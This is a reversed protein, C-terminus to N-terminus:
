LREAIVAGCCHVRRGVDVALYDYIASKTRSACGVVHVQQGQQALNPLTISGATDVTVTRERWKLICM